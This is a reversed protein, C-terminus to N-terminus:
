RTSLPGGVMVSDKTTGNAVSTIRALPGEAPGALVAGTPSFRSGHCPCDWTREARNWGVRCGLHTCEPSLMTLVGREDRSAAVLRGEVEVLQGDGRGVARLSRTTAGAFRDRMMYYPYDANERLYDWAKRAGASRGVDFLERWPNARGTIADRAMMAALTGFTMGNGAFGTAIFQGNGVEGIYPLGDTTEIVQGSWRHSVKAGPVLKAMWRGLTSFCAGTDGVQGTKHDEGGAILWPGDPSRDVRVYRYPTATDWYCAAVADQPAAAAAVYTSYLALRTQLLAASATSSRGVLPNHTALVVHPARITHPGLHVSELDDGFTVDNGECIVCGDAACAELLGRLYKRPHFVAQNEIRWGPTDMLPTREVLVVDFGLERALKAEGALRERTREAEHDDTHLPIHRFGPVWAFDCAIDLDAILTDIQDIAAYGADWVAQAHDAGISSALSTLDEDVVVTLHASTCATDVGGVRRRDLLAVRCGAQKLLYASTIGTLGAGVVVVDVELSRGLSPFEPLEVANWVPNNRFGPM